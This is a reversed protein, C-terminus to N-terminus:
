NDISRYIVPKLAQELNWNYPMTQEMTIVILEDVPSIWYHTSAAGGWGYEGLAADKDWRDDRAFKVSFGLGFGTGHRVEDGFSIASIQRPLQNTVMLDVTDQRLYRKGQFRGGNAIMQLFKAYDTITSILGSGGGKFAPEKLMESGEAPDGVKLGEKESRYSVSLREVKEAPVSYATDVMGLPKILREDIFKEFPMGAAKAVVAALIDSSSGYVWKTGPPYLLPAKGIVEMQKELTWSEKSKIGERYFTSVPHEGWSSAFGGTHRLLDRVTSSRRAPYVTGETAWVQPEALEPLFLEVPDDLSMKGEECLMLAAASTLAKTMSYIRFLTDKKMAKGLERDQQGFSEQYVIHGRRLVLINAGALKGEGILDEVVPGIKELGEKSMGFAAPEGVPLDKVAIERGIVMLPFLILLLARMGRKYVCAEARPM